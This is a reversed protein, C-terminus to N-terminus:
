LTPADPRETCLAWIVFIGLAINLLAWLPLYPLWMFNLIVAVAALGVGTAKAWTQGTLICWGTIAVLVGLFLHIWGWSTVSMKFAYDGLGAYVTNDAIGAIGQLFGFVGQLLLLVGALVTGGTAWAQRPADGEPVDATGHHAGSHAQRPDPTEHQDSM